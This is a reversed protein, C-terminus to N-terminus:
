LGDSSGKEMEADSVVSADYHDSAYALVDKLVDGPEQGYEEAIAAALDALSREGDIGHLLKVGVQNVVVVEANAQNVIVGEGVVERFRVEPNLVLVTQSNFRM